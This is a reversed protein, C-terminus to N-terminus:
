ARDHTGGEPEANLRHETGRALIFLIEAKSERIVVAEDWWAQAALLLGM